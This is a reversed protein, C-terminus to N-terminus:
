GFFKSSAQKYRAYLEQARKCRDGNDNKVINELSTLYYGINDTFLKANCEKLFGLITWESSRRDFYEHM